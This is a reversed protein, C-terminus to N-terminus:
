FGQPQAPHPYKGNLIAMKGIHALMDSGSIIHIGLVMNFAHVLCFAKEQKEM